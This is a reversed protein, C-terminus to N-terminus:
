HVFLVTKEKRKALFMFVWVCCLKVSTGGLSHGALGRSTHTRMPQCAWLLIGGRSLSLGWLQRVRPSWVCLLYGLIPKPTDPSPLKAYKEKRM